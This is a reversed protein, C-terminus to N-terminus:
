PCGVFVQEFNITGNTAQLSPLSWQFASRTCGSGVLRLSKGQGQGYLTYPIATSTRNALYQDQAEVTM